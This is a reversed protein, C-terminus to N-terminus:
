INRKFDDRQDKITEGSPIFDYKFDFANIGDLIRKIDESVVFGDKIKIM